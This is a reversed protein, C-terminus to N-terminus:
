RRCVVNGATKLAKQRIAVREKAIEMAMPRLETGFSSEVWLISEYASVYAENFLRNFRWRVGQRTMGFSSEVKAGYNKRLVMRKLGDTKLDILLDESNLLVRLKELFAKDKDTLKM